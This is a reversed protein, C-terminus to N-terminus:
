CPDKNVIAAVHGIPEIFEAGHLSELEALGLKPQRGFIVFTQLM